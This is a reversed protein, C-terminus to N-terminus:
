AQAPVAEGIAEAARHRRVGIFRMTAYQILFLAIKTSLAFASMFEGWALLSLQMAAVINVVATVFMLSAWVFGFIVGIDPVIEIAQQPLYRNMWGPKLMVVGVIVYTVSPKILVFRADHTLMTAIASAVVLFLSMWQMTQIPKGRYREWLVQGIGLAIGAAVAVLISKTVLFIALYFFTSAMDLLLFSASRLLSKM